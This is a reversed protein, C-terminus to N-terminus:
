FDSIKMSFYDGLLSAIRSVLLAYCSAQRWAHLRDDDLPDETVESGAVWARDSVCVGSWRIFAQSKLGDFEASINNRSPDRRFRKKPWGM